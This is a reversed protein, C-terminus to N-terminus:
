PQLDQLDATTLSCVAADHPRGREMLRNRAICEPTAGLKEAVRRGAIRSIQNIDVMGLLDDSAADTILLPYSSGTWAQECLLQWSQAEELSYDDHRWSMWRGIEKASSRVAQHFRPADAPAIRRLTLGNGTLIKEM